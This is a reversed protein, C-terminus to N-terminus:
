WGGGGGGGSSSGGGGGGGGGSSSSPASVGAAVAGAAVAWSGTAGAGGFAGGGGTWSSTSSSASSSTSSSWASGSSSASVTGGFARFWRDVQTGLGFALVYPFWEDRLAPQPLQLQELFFKRAGAIRKRFAILERPDRIKLLNLMLHLLALLWLAIAFPLIVGIRSDKATLAGAIFGLSPLSMLISPAVFARVFSTIPRSMFWAVVCAIIAFVAGPFVVLMIAGPAASLVAAAIVFLLAAPITAVHLWPNFRRVKATWQPITEALASEIGPRILAAPNFGTGKYHERIRTTDTEDTIFLKWALVSEYGTLANRDVNLKLHLTEDEVRTTITGEQSMRALLAAVEPPGVGADWATGALEPKLKLLEPDFQAPLPAFRGVEREDRIFGRILLAACAAFFAVAAPGIWWALPRTVGAPWGEGARTLDVQVIVSQRPELPMRTEQVNQKNWVPDFALNLTFREIVGQRDPLGFDHSLLFTEGSPTLIDSYTVDLVYTIGRNEFPPDAPLRSRWRLIDGSMVDYGDVEDLNGRKMLIERGDDIRAMGNVQLSQGPRLDFDREGGNWDGDFVIQQREVIHLRGDADLRANVDVASWHLSKGFIPVAALLVLLVRFIM